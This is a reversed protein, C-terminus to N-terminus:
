RAYIRLAGHDEAARTETLAVEREIRVCRLLPREIDLGLARAREHDAHADFACAVARGGILAEHEVHRTAGHEVPVAREDGCVARACGNARRPALVDDEGNGRVHERRARIRRREIRRNADFRRDVRGYVARVPRDLRM